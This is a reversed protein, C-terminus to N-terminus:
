KFAHRYTLTMQAAPDFTAANFSVTNDGPELDFWAGSVVQAAVGDLLASRDDFDLTLTRGATIADRGYLRRGSNHTITWGAPVPGMLTITPRTEMNGENVATIRGSTITAGITLPAVLPLSFGGTTQPLGTSVTVVDPSYRRPDPAVLGISFTRTGGKSSEQDLEPKGDQAVLAALTRRSAVNMWAPTSLPVSAWLRGLAEDADDWTAAICSGILQMYRPTYKPTGLIRGGHEGTRQEVENTSEAPDSWGRLESLVWEVGFSDTVGFVIEGLSLQGPHLITGPVGVGAPGIEEPTTLIPMLCGGRIRRQPARCPSCRCPRLDSLHGHPFTRWSGGRTGSLKDNPTIRGSQRATFLEPGKEGVLYTKGGTVPGGSARAGAVNLGAGSRIANVRLLVTKDKVRAIAAAMNDVDSKGSVVAKVNAKRNEPIKKIDNAMGIAKDGARQMSEGATKAWGFGPVKGLASLMKGYFKILNGLGGVIFALAPQVAKNWLFTFADGVAKMAGDVIKRFTESKKYAIVLGAVLAAIALVVLGIPNASMVFNLAAMVGSFIRIVATVTKFVGVGTAFAAVLPVIVARNEVLFNGVNLLIGGLTSLKDAFEGGAGTGNRMGDIFSAVKPVVSNNLFTVFDTMVPLLASGITSKVDDFQASLVRQQNALGGSTRAFDGQATKTQDMILKQAALAKSQPTLAEKTNKILGLKLAEAKLTADNMNVGFKKLPETEGTLGSQLAALAEEPSVNNFSALDGALQVMQQSMGAAKKPAIDLSVLLNGLTGTADLYASKSLGMATASTKSADLIQGASKGFVVGVKSQNEALDSAASVAGGLFKTALAAGGVVALAGVKLASGFRSGAKKGSADVQGGVEKDLTSGFGKASPIVSVFAAGVEAM